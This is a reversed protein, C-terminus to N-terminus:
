KQGVDHHDIICFPPFDGPSLNWKLYYGGDMWYDGYTDIVINPTFANWVLVDGTMMAARIGEHKPRM